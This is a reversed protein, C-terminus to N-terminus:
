SKRISKIHEAHVRLTFIFHLFSHMKSWLINGRLIKHCYRSSIASLSPNVQPLKRCDLGKPSLLCGPHDLHRFNGTQEKLSLSHTGVLESVWKGLEWLQQQCILIFSRKRNLMCDSTTQSTVKASSQLETEQVNVYKYWYWGVPLTRGSMLTPGHPLVNYFRGLM